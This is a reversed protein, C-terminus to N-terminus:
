NTLSERFAKSSALHFLLSTKWSNFTSGQLARGPWLIGSPPVHGEGAYLLFGLPFSFMFVSNDLYKSQLRLVKDDSRWKLCSHAGTGKLDSPLYLVLMKVNKLILKNRRSAEPKSGRGESQKSVTWDLKASVEQTRVMTGVSWYWLAPGNIVERSSLKRM